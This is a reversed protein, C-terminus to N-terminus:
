VLVCLPARPIWSLRGVHPTALSLSRPISPGQATPDSVRRLPYPPFRFPIRGHGFCSTTPAGLHLAHGATAGPTGALASGVYRLPTSKRTEDERDSFGGSETLTTAIPIVKMVLRAPNRARIRCNALVLVGSFHKEPRM